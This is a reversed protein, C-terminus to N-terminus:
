SFIHCQQRTRCVIRACRFHQVIQASGLLSEALEGMVARCFPVTRSCVVTPAQALERQSFHLDIDENAAALRCTPLLDPHRTPMRTPNSASLKIDFSSTRMLAIIGWLTKHRTRLLGGVCGRPQPRVSDRRSTDHWIHIGNLYV